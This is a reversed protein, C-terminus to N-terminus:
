ESERDDVAWRRREPLVGEPFFRVVLVLLLGIIVFRLSPLFTPNRATFTDLGPIDGIFRTGERLAILTFAGAVVGLNNGAGGILMALWVQFTIIPVFQGVHVAGISHVWLSGAVGALAGGLTFAKLKFRLTNKGLSRVALEDQRIGRLARGFPAETLRQTLFLLLAVVGISLFLYFCPYNEASILSNKLPQPVVSIGYEGRTLWEENGLFARFIEALAFTAIALYHARLRVSTVGVLLALLGGALGALLLAMVFPLGLGVQYRGGIEQYLASGPPPLTVLASTFAGAAFFAVHGFNLLGAYGYHLNLGLALLSYVLALTSLATLFPLWAAM